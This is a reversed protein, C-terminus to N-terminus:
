SGTRLSSQLITHAAELLLGDRLRVRATRVARLSLRQCLAELITVCALVADARPFGFHRRRGCTGMRFLTSAIGPLQDAAVQSVRYGLFDRLVANATGSTVYAWPLDSVFRDLGVLETLLTRAQQRFRQLDRAHPVGGPCRQILEASGIPVSLCREIRNATGMALETSGGGLEILLWPRTLTRERVIAGALLRAKDAGALAVPRLGTAREVRDWVARANSATGFAGSMVVRPSQPLAHCARAYRGLVEIMREEAAAPIRGTAFLGEGPFIPDRDSRVRVLPGRPRVRAIALRTAHIGVDIVALSVGKATAM